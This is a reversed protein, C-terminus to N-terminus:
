RVISAIGNKKVLKLLKDYQLTGASHTVLLFTRNLQNLTEALRGVGRSDLPNVVEDSQYWLLGGKDKTSNIISQFTIDSAIGMKIREGGSYNFYSKGRAGSRFVTPNFMQRMTGNKLMKFGEINVSLDSGIESLYYNINACVSKLPINCVYYRFDEFNKFWQELNHLEDQANEIEQNINSRVQKESRLSEKFRNINGLKEPEAEIMKIDASVKDMESRNNSIYGSFQRIQTEVNKVQYELQQKKQREDRLWKIDIELQQISSNVQVKGKAVEDFLLSSEEMDRMLQEDTKYAHLRFEHHCSPCEIMEKKLEFEVNNLMGKIQMELKALENLDARAKQLESEKSQSQDLDKHESMLAQVEEMQAQLGTLKEEHRKIDEGYSLLSQQKGAIAQAVLEDLNFSAIEAQFTEIKGDSAALSQNLQIIKTNKESVEGKIKALAKEIKTTNSFRTIVKLKEANGAKLFPTYYKESTFYYNLLDEKSIELIKELIYDSGSKIDVGGTGQKTPVGAPMEGNVLIILESSKTNNYFKREIYVDDKTISNYMQCFATFCDSESSDNVCEKLSKDDLSQGLLCIPLIDLLSTKGVGNSEQDPEDLNQASLLWCGNELELEVSKLSMYNECGIKKVINSM